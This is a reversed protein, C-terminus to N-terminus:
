LRSYMSWGCLSIASIISEMLAARAAPMKGSPNVKLFEPERQANDRLSVRRFEYEAGTEAVAAETSFAGSGRDGYIIYGM